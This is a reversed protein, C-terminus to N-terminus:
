EITQRRQKCVYVGYGVALLVLFLLVDWGDGIPINDFDPPAWGQNKGVGRRAMAKYQYDEVTFGADLSEAVTSFQGEGEEGFDMAATSSMNQVFTEGYNFINDEIQFSNQQAGGNYYDSVYGTEGWSVSNSWEIGYTQIPVFIGICVMLRM